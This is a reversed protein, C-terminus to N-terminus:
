CLLANTINNNMMSHEFPHDGNDSIHITITVKPACGTSDAPLTYEHTTITNPQYGKLRLEIRGIEKHSSLFHCKYLALVFSARPVSDVIYSWVHHPANENATFKAGHDKYTNRSGVCVMYAAKNAHKFNGFDVKDIRIYVKTSESLNTYGHNHFM